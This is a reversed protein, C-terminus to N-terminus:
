VSKWDQVVEGSVFDNYTTSSIAGKLQGALFKNADSGVKMLDEAKKLLEPTPILDTYTYQRIVSESVDFICTDDFRLMDQPRSIIEDGDIQKWYTNASIQKHLRKYTCAMDPIFPVKLMIRSIEDRPKRELM